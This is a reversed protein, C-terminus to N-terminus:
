VKEFGKNSFQPIKQQQNKESLSIGFQVITCKGGRGHYDSGEMVGNTATKGLRAHHHKCALFM